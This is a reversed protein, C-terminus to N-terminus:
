ATRQLPNHHPSQAWFSNDYSRWAAQNAALEPFTEILKMAVPDFAQTTVPKVLYDLVGEKLYDRRTQESPVVSVVIVAVEPMERKMARLLTMSDLNFRRPMRADLSVLDPRYQRFLKLGWLANAAEAVVICGQERLHYGITERAAACDDIVLATVPM